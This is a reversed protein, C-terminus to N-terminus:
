RKKSTAIIQKLISETLPEEDSGPFGQWRVVNDPTIVLVHPVAKIEISQMMKEKTDIGVNYAMKTSKMFNKIVDSHEDSVGIVVLDKSFEKQWNNLEPIFERCPPCWTAWFDILVVKGKTSPANGTVWKEVVLKPAAKGRLDQGAYLNKEVPKPYGSDSSAFRLPRQANAKPKLLREAFEIWHGPGGQDYGYQGFAKGDPSIFLITPYGRVFPFRRLMDMNQRRVEATQPTRHPYDLELLVVSKAAWKKFQPTDFVEKHLQVCWHCWDSGTFDALIPKGTKKSMKVAQDYSTTWDSDAFAGASILCALTAALAPKYLSKM